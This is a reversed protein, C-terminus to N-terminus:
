NVTSSTATGVLMWIWFVPVPQCTDCHTSPLTRNSGGSGRYFTRLLDDGTLKGITLVPFPFNQTHFHGGEGRKKEQSDVLGTM